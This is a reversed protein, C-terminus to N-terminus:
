SEIDEFTLNHNDMIEKMEENSRKTWWDKHAGLTCKYYIRRILDYDHGIKWFYNLYKKLDYYVLTEHLTKHAGYIIKDDDLLECVNKLKLIYESKGMIIFDFLKEQDSKPGRWKYYNPYMINTYIKNFDFSELDLINLFATDFRTLIIFDYKRQSKEVLNLVKSISYWRSKIRIPYWKDNKDVEFFINEQYEYSIPKYLFNIQEKFKNDWCHIFVDVNHHDFLNRKYHKYGIVPNIYKQNLCDGSYYKGQQFGVSGCLCFAIKKDTM